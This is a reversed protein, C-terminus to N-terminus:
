GDVRLSAQADRAPKVFQPSTDPISAYFLGAEGAVTEVVVIVMLEGTTKIDPLAFGLQAEIVWAPRGDVTTAENRRDTRTVAADGYFKGTVCAAVVGAGQEPGYFGDGALLRAILVGAVWTPKGTADQEVTANQNQVERGFPVRTDWQPPGFPADLRAYSLPGSRVRDGTQPPPPSATELVADPCVLGSPTGSPDPGTGDEVDRSLARLAVVAIVALVTVLAVAGLIWPLASRRPGPTPPVATSPPPTRPDPTTGASWGRGDWYRFLGPQGGPDPYWGAAASVLAIRPALWTM